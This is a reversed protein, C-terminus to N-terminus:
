SCLLAFSFFFSFFPLSSVSFRTVMQQKDLRLIEESLKLYEQDGEALVTSFLEHISGDERRIFHRYLEQELNLAENYLMIHIIRERYNPDRHDRVNFATTAIKRTTGHFGIFTRAQTLIWRLTRPSIEMDGPVFFESEDGRLRHFFDDICGNMHIHETYKYSLWCAACGMIAYIFLTYILGGVGNAETKEYYNFIKFAEASQGGAIVEVIFILAPDLVTLCGYSMMFRSLTDPLPHPRNKFGQQIIFMVVALLSFVVLNSLVGAVTMGVEKWLEIGDTEYFLDCNYWHAVFKSIPHGTSKLFYYQGTYHIYMRFWFISALVFIFAWFEMTKWRSQGLDATLEAMVYRYKEMFPNTPVNTNVNVVSFKYNSLIKAKKRADKLNNHSDEATNLAHAESASNLDAIVDAALNSVSNRRGLMPKAAAKALPQSNAEVTYSPAVAPMGKGIPADGPLDKLFWDNKTKDEKKKNTKAMEAKVDVINTVADFSFSDSSFLADLGTPKGGAAGFFSMRRGVVPRGGAGARAGAGEAFGSGQSLGDKTRNKWRAEAEAANDPESDSEADNVQADRFFNDATAVENKRSRLGLLQSTFQINVEWESHSNVYRSKHEVDFYLNCLWSDIDGKMKKEIDSYKTLRPDMEGRMLPCKFTGKVVESNPDIAPFVGWAVVHDTTTRQGDRVAFLEFLFVNSPKAEYRSPCAIFMRNENQAFSMEISSFHGNHYQAVPTHAFHCFGNGLKCHSLAHGGLRDFLTVLVCYQGGPLKNKIARLYDVRMRVLRPAGDWDFQGTDKSNMDMGERFEGFESRIMGKQTRLVARGAETAKEFADEQGEFNTITAQGLRKERKRLTAAALEAEKSMLDM